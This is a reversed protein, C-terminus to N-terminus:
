VWDTVVRAASGLLDDVFELVEVAPHGSQYRATFYQVVIEGSDQVLAGAAVGQGLLLKRLFRWLL